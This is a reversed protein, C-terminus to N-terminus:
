HSHGQLSSLGHFARRSLERLRDVGARGLEAIHPLNKDYMLQDLRRAAEVPKWLRLSAALPLQDRCPPRPAREAIGAAAARGAEDASEMTGVDTETRAWDSAIFFNEAGHDPHPRLLYSGSPSVWLPTTCRAAGAGFTVKTDVRAHLIRSSDIRHEPGLGSNIQALTEEILEQESCDQPAKGTSAPHEWASIIVSIVDELGDIGFTEALSHRFSRRWFQGQSVSTLAWASNPYLVHGETIDAPQSLFFQLGVMPESGEGLNDQRQPITTIPQLAEPLEPAALLLPRAVEFPLALAIHTDDASADITQLGGSETELVVDRIRPDGTGQSRPEFSLSRVTHGFHLHVGLQELADTWPEIMMWDTPGPLLADRLEFSTDFNELMQTATNLLTRLSGRDARMASLARMSHIYRRFNPGLAHKEFFFQELTRHEYDQLSRDECSTLFQGLLLAFRLIDGPPIGFERVMMEYMISMGRIGLARETSVLKGTALAPYPAEVLLDRISLGALRRDFQHQEVRHAGLEISGLTDIIARYFNPFFRFGHEGPFGGRFQSCAKGGLRGAREHIHCEVDTALQGRRAMRALHLACSMGGLGGGLIHVRMTM